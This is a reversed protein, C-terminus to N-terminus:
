VGTGLADLGDPKAAGQSYVITKGRHLEVGSTEGLRKELRDFVPAVRDPGCIAYVDDLFACLDEGDELQVAVTALADHVGVLRSFCPCSHIARSEEGVRGCQTALARRTQGRM